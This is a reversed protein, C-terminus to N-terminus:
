PRHARAPADPVASPRPHQPAAARATAHLADHVTPFLPLLAELGLLHWVKRHHDHLAAVRLTGARDDLFRTLGIIMSIGSSDLHETRSADLVLTTCGQGVLDECGAGVLSANDYDVEEPLQVVATDQHRMRVTVM